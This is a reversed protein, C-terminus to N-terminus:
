RLPLPLSVPQHIEASRYAALAVEVAKLGDEGTVSPARDKRLSAVFENILAQDPDSGWFNWVSRQLADTYVTLNQIFYNTQLVGRDCILDIKVNGWMPYYRPRSWSCDLSAFVGNDFTMLLLGATDIDHTDKHFLNDIEAFVEVVESGLYWRLMDVVHVSHDM